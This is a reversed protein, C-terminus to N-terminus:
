SIVSQKIFMEALERCPHHKIMEREEPTLIRYTIPDISAYKMIGGCHWCMGIDGPKPTNGIQEIDDHINLASNCYMCRAIHIM